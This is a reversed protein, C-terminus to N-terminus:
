RVASGASKEATRRTLIRRRRRALGDQFAAARNLHPFPEDPVPVGLFACLPEWGEAVDFELLRDAAIHERVRRNHRHFTAIAHERDTFRGQFTDDWIVTRAVRRRRRLWPDLRDELRMLLGDLNPPPPGCSKYITQAVSDYWRDAPRTTLIVRAGTFTDALEEWYACAPWDVVSGFGAFLDEWREPGGDLLREWRQLVAPDEGLSAMHHCPGFGLVELATRLSYTGTRGLGAGIVEIM